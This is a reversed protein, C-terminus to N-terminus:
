SSSVTLPHLLHTRRRKGVRRGAHETRSEERTLWERGHRTSKRCVQTRQLAPVHGSGRRMRLEVPVRM